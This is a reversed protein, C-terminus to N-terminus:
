ELIADGETIKKDECQIIFYYGPIPSWRFEIAGRGSSIKDLQILKIDVEPVINIAKNPEWETPDRMIM